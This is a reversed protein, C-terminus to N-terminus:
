LVRKQNGLRQRHKETVVTNDEVKTLFEEIMTCSNQVVKLVVECQEALRKMNEPMEEREEPRKRFRVSNKSVLKVEKSNLSLMRRFEVKDDVVSIKEERNAIM